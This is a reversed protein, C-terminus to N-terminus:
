QRRRAADCDVVDAPRPGELLFPEQQFCVGPERHILFHDREVVVDRILTKPQDEGAAVRRETLVGLTM